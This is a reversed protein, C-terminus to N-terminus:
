ILEPPLADFCKVKFWSPSGLNNLVLSLTLNVTSWDIEEGALPPVLHGQRIEIGDAVSVYSSLVLVQGKRTYMVVWPKTAVATCVQSTLMTWESRLIVFPRRDTMYVVTEDEGGAPDEFISAM